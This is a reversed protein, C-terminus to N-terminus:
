SGLLIYLQISSSPINPLTLPSHVLNLCQDTSCLSSSCGEARKHPLLHVIVYLMATCRPLHAHQYELTQPKTHSICYHYFTAHSRCSEAGEAYKFTRHCLTTYALMFRTNVSYCDSADSAMTRHQRTSEWRITIRLPLPLISHLSICAIVFRALVTRM